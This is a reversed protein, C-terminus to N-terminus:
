AGGRLTKRGTARVLLRNVLGVLCDVEEDHTGNPFVALQDLFPGVWAAGEPVM